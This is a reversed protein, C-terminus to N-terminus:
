TDQGKTQNCLFVIKHEKRAKQQGLGSESRSPATFGQLFIPHVETHNLKSTGYCSAFLLSLPLNMYLQMNYRAVEVTFFVFLSNEIFINSSFVTSFLMYRIDYTTNSAVTMCKLSYM